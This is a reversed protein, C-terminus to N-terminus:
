QGAQEAKMEEAIAKADEELLQRLEPSMSHQSQMGMRMMTRRSETSMSLLMERQRAIRQQLAAPDANALAQMAAGMYEPGVKEMMDMQAMIAQERQEPTMKMFADMQDQQMKVFKDIAEKAEKKEDAKAKAVIAADNTVLYVKVMGLTKAAADEAATIGKKDDFHAALRGTSSGAVVLSPFSFGSMLRVTSALRDPQKILDSDAALYLRRWEMKGSIKGIAALAAELSVDTLTASIQGGVTSEVVIKAKTQKQFSDLIEVVKKDKVDISVSQAGPQAAPDSTTKGAEATEAAWAGGTVACLLLCIAPTLFKMAISRM